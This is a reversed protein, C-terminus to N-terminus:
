RDCIVVRGGGPRALQVSLKPRPLKPASQPYIRRTTIAITRTPIAQKRHIIERTRRRMKEATNIATSSCASASPIRRHVLIGARHDRGSAMRRTTPRM